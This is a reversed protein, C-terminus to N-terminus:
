SINTNNDTEVNINVLNYDVCLRLGIILAKIKASLIKDTTSMLHLVLKGHSDRLVGGAALSHVYSSADM